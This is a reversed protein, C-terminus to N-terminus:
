KRLKIMNSATGEMANYIQKATYDYYDGASVGHALMAFCVARM